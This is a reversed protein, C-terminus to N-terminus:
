NCCYTHCRFISFQGIFSQSETNFTENQRREQPLDIDGAQADGSPSKPPSLALVYTEQNANSKQSYQNLPIGGCIEQNRVHDSAAGHGASNQRQVKAKMRAFIKAPTETCRKLMLDAKDQPTVEATANISSLECHINPSNEEASQATSNMVLVDRNSIKRGSGVAWNHATKPITKVPTIMDAAKPVEPPIFCDKLPHYM